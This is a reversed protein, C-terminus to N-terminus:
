HLTLWAGPSSRMLQVIEPMTRLVQHGNRCRLDYVLESAHRRLYTLRAEAADQEPSGLGAAIEQETLRIQLAVGTPQLLHGDVSILVLDSPWRRYTAEAIIAGCAPCTLRKTIQRRLERIMPGTVEM